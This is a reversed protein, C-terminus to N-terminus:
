ASLESMIEDALTDMLHLRKRGAATITWTARGGGLHPPHVWGKDVLHQRAWQVHMAFKSASNAYAYAVDDHALNSFRVELCAYVDQCRMQGAPATSLARLLEIQIVDDHPIAM